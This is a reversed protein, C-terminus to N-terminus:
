ILVHGDKSQPGARLWHARCLLVLNPGQTRYISATRRLDPEREVLYQQQAGIVSGPRVIRLWGLAERAAFGQYKMMYLAILTGSRGLGEQCHLFVLRALHESDSPSDAKLRV